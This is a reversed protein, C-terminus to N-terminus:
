HRTSTGVGAGGPFNRFIGGADGLSSYVGPHRLLLSFPHLSGLSTPSPALSPVASPSLAAWPDTSPPVWWACFFGWNVRGLSLLRHTQM